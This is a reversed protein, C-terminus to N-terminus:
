GALAAYTPKEFYGTLEKGKGRVWKAYSPDPEGLCYTRSQTRATRDDLDIALLESTWGPGDAVFPHGAIHGSLVLYGRSPHPVVSWHEVLPYIM